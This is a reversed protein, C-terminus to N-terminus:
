QKKCFGQAYAAARMSLRNAETSLTTGAAPPQLNGHAVLAAVKRELGRARRACAALIHPCAHRAATGADLKNAIATLRRQLHKVCKHGCPPTAGIGDRLNDVSCQVWPATMTPLEDHVCGTTAECHDTTCHDADNCDADSLCAPPPCQLLFHVNDAHDTTVSGSVIPITYSGGPPLLLVAGPPVTSLDLSVTYTDTRTPLGISYFGSAISTGHYVAGPEVDQSTADVGVGALRGDSDDIAGNSNTDCYVRGNIHHALAGSATAIVLAVAAVRRSGPSRVSM